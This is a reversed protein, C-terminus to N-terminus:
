AWFAALGDLLGDHFARGRVSAHWKPHHYVPEIPPITVTQGPPPPGARGEDSGGPMDLRAALPPTGAPDHSGPVKDDPGTRGAAPVPPIRGADKRVAGLRATVDRWTWARAPDDPRVLAVRRTEGDVPVATTLKEGAAKMLEATGLRARGGVVVLRVDRERAAVVSRWPDRGRRGLVVLDGPSGPVLRGFPAGWAGALTDGPNATVMTVLDHDTLAWGARDAHLRAVKIEGLLNKTGSPGWDTGLAVRLGAARAAPIDTTRGYLWLNSLPSWVVTGAARGRRPAAQRRWERFDARTLATAHIAVLWPQLCEAERLGTFEKVIASGPVGEACHYVFVAAPDRSRLKDGLGAPDLAMVSVLVPERPAAAATPAAPDDDVSRVLRNAPPRSAPPWGQIATTGGALARVQFYAFLCEPAQLLLTGAPVYL